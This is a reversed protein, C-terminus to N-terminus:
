RQQTGLRGHALGRRLREEPTRALSCLAHYVGSPDLEPHLAVIAKARAWREEYQRQWERDDM